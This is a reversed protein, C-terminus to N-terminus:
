NNKSSQLLTKDIQSAWVSNPYDNMLENWISKAEETRQENHMLNGCKYLSAAALNPHQPYLIPIRMFNIAAQDTMKLRSQASGLVFYPGARLDKPMQAIRQIWKKLQGPNVNTLETRWLQAAALNAIRPEFDNALKKLVQIADSRKPGGLHWSAAMLQLVPENAALWSETYNRIDAAGVSGAWALPILNMFRTQPDSATISGFEEIASRDQEAASYAKILEARIITKAWERQEINLAKRFSVIAEAFKRKASLSKGTAYETSWDTEIQVIRDNAIERTRAGSKLSLATGKWAVIEGRRKATKGSDDGRTIVTDQAQASTVFLWGLVMLVLGNRILTKGLSGYSIGSDSSFRGPISNKRGENTTGGEPPFSLGRNRSFGTRRVNLLSRRHNKSM